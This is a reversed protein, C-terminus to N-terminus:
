LSYLAFPAGQEHFIRGEHLVVSASAMYRSKTLGHMDSGDETDDGGESATSTSVSDNLRKEANKSKSGFRLLKKFVKAIDKLPQDTENTAFVPREVSGWKKRVRAADAERMLNLHHTNRTDSNGRPSDVCGDTDSAEHVSSISPHIQSDREGLVEDVYWCCSEVFNPPFASSGDDQAVYENTRGFEENETNRVMDASCEQQSVLKEDYEGKSQSEPIKFARLKAISAGAGPGIGGGRRLFTKIQIKQTATNQNKEKPFSSLALSSSDSNRPILEKLEGFSVSSSRTHRIRPQIEEKCGDMGAATSKSRDFTRWDSHTPVNGVRTLPKMNEKRLDPSERTMQASSYVSQTRQKTFTSHDTRSSRSDPGALNRSLLKRTGVTGLSKHQDCQAQERFEIASGASFSRQKRLSHHGLLVSDNRDTSDGFRVKIEASIKELGDEMEMMVEKKRMWKASGWERRLKADRRQLYQEYLRGKSSGSLSQKMNHQLNDVMNFLLDGDFAVSGSTPEGLSEMRMEDFVEDASDVRADGLRVGRVSSTRCGSSGLRRAAFLRELEAARTRLEHMVEQNSTQPGSSRYGGTPVQNMSFTRRHSRMSCCGPDGRSRQYNPAVPRSGDGSELGALAQNSRSPPATQTVLFSREYATKALM